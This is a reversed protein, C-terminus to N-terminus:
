RARPCRSRRSSCLRGSRPSPRQRPATAAPDPRRGRWALGGALLALLVVIAVTLKKQTAVILGGKWLASARPRGLPTMLLIWARRDGAHRADLAARLRDLGEKLRWRVTGAPIGQARAIEAASLGEYYRLLVTARYPEDLAAVLEVLLRQTQARELLWEPSPAATPAFAQAQDERRSRARETRLARRAFNRLVEGLWPEAPRDRRPPARLAALWTEQVVDDAGGADRVVHAALRRLWDAHALLEDIRLPSEPADMLALGPRM